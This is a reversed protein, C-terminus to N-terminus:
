LCVCCFHQDLMNVQGWYPAFICTPGSFLTQCWYNGAHGLPYPTPRRFWLNGTRDRARAKSLSPKEKQWTSPGVQNIESYNKGCPQRTKDTISDTKPGLLGKLSTFLQSRLCSHQALQSPMILAKHRAAPMSRPCHAEVSVRRAQWLGAPVAGGRNCGMGRGPVSTMLATDSLIIRM